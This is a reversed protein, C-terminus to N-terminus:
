CFQYDAVIQWKIAWKAANRLHCSFQLSFIPLGIGKDVICLRLLWSFIAYFLQLCWICRFSFKGLLQMIRGYPIWDNYQKVDLCLLWELLVLFPVRFLFESYHAMNGPFAIVEEHYLHYLWGSQSVHFWALSHCESIVRFFIVPFHGNAATPYFSARFHDSLIITLLLAMNRTINGSTEPKALDHGSIITRVSLQQYYLSRSQYYIWWHHCLFSFHYNVWNADSKNKAERM